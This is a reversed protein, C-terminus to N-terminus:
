EPLEQQVLEPVLAKGTVLSKLYEKETAKAMEQQEQSKLRLLELRLQVLETRTERVKRKWYQSEQLWAVFWGALFSLLLLLAFLEPNM